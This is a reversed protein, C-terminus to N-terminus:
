YDSLMTFIVAPGNLAIVNNKYSLNISGSSWHGICIKGSLTTITICDTMIYISFIDHFLFHQLGLQCLLPKIAALCVLGSLFSLQCLFLHVSLCDYVLVVNFM